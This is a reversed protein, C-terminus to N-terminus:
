VFGSFGNLRFYTYEPQFDIFDSIFATPINRQTAIGLALPKHTPSKKCKNTRCPCMLLLRSTPTFTVAARMIKNLVTAM